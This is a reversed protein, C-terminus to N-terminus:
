IGGFALHIASLLTIYEIDRWVGFSHRSAPYYINIDRLVGVSHHCAPYYANM